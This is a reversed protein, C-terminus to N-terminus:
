KRNFNKKFCKKNFQKKMCGKKKPLELLISDNTKKRVANNLNQETRKSLNVRIVFNDLNRNNLQECAKKAEILDYYEIFGFTVRKYKQNIWIRNVEGVESFLNKLREESVTVSLNGIYVKYFNNM